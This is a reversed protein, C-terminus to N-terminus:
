RVILSEPRRGCESDTLAADPRSFESLKWRAARVRVAGARGADSGNACATACTTLGASIPAAIDCVTVAIIAGPTGGGIWLAASDLHAGGSRGPECLAVHSAWRTSRAAAM